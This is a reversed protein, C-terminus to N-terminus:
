LPSVRPLVDIRGPTFGFPLPWTFVVTKSDGGQLEQIVTKSAARANGEVDFVVVAVELERFTDLSNNTLTAELRPSTDEGSLIRRSITPRIDEKRFRILQKDEPISLLARVPVRSATQFGTEVIPTIGGTMIYTSGERETITLNKEDFLRITYPTEEGYADANPNSLYAAVTYIGPAVELPRAFEVFVPAVQSLCLYKCSGGCDIGAEDGNQSGDFCNPAPNIYPYAVYAAVVLVPFSILLLIILRRRAAWSM